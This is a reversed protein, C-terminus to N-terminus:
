QIDYKLNNFETKSIEGQALRKKLIELATDQTKQYLIKDSKAVGFIVFGIGAVGM